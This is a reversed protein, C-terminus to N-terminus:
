ILFYIKKINNKMKNFYNYFIRTVFLKICDKINELKICPTEKFNCNFKHNAKEYTEEYDINRLFKLDKKNDILM